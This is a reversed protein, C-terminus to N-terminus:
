PALLEQVEATAGLNRLIELQHKGISYESTLKHSVDYDHLGGRSVGQVEIMGARKFADVLVEVARSNARTYEIKVNLFKDKNTM